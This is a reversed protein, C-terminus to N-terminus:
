QDLRNKCEANYQEVLTGRRLPKGKLAEIQRSMEQCRADQGPDMTNSETMLPSPQLLGSEVPPTSGHNSAFAHGASVLVALMLIRYKM